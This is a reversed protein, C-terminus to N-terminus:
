NKRENRKDRLLINQAIPPNHQTPVLHFHTHTPKWIDIWLQGDRRSFWGKQVSSESCSIFFDFRYYYYYYTVVIIIIIISLLSLLLLIM